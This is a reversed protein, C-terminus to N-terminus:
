EPCCLGLLMTGVDYGRAGVDYWHRVLMASFLGLMTGSLGLMTGYEWQLAPLIPLCLLCLM